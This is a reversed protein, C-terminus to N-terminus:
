GARRRKVPQAKTEIADVAGLAMKVFTDILASRSRRTQRWIAALGQSGAVLVSAALLADKREINRGESILDAIYKVAQIIRASRAAELAGNATRAHQLAPADDGSDLTTMWTEVLTRLRTEFDVAGAMADALRADFRATDDIQLAVLVDDRNKFFRYPLAKTVGSASALREM